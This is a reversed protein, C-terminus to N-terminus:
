ICRNKSYGSAEDLCALIIFEVSNEFSSHRVQFCVCSRERDATRPADILLAFILLKNKEAPPVFDLIMNSEPLRTSRFLKPLDLRQHLVRLTFM